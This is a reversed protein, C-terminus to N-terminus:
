KIEVATKVSAEGCGWLRQLLRCMEPDHQALEARTFPFIDNRGFFAETTEAFYEKANTMAYARVTRGDYQKVADYSQSAVARRYAAAIDANDFGLVQDHYAHALEHLIFMPMRRTEQEFILVNTIEVAKAMAPDRGHARLWGASPHYEARPGRQDPYVPSLWLPVKQLQAVAPAPVVRVIERLHGTLLGLAQATAAPEAARLQESVRVTWGEIQQVQYAASNTAARGALQLALVCLCLARKM